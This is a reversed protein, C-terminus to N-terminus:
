EKLINKFFINPAIFAEYYKRAEVGLKNRKETDYMLEKCLEILHQESDFYILHINDKLPYPFIINNNEAIICKGQSMFEPLTWGTSLTLGRTYICIGCSQMAKLFIQANGDINSLCDNYPDTLPSDKKLGGIFNNPFAQKLKKILQIRQQHIEKTDLDYENPFLRKQYFILDSLDSEKYDNFDQLSRTNKFTKIKKLTDFVLVQLRSVINRDMKILQVARFLFFLLYIKCLDNFKDPRVMFPLGLPRIKNQYEGPLLNVYEELYTRKFVIDAMEFSATSFEYPSDNLDFALVQKNGQKKVIEIYTIKSYWHNSYLQKKSEVSLKGKKNKNIISVNFHIKNKRCFELLSTYIYSSHNLELPVFWVIKKIDSINYNTM